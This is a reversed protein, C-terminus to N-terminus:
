ASGGPEVIEVVRMHQTVERNLYAWAAPADGGCRIWLYYALDPWCEPNLAAASVGGAVHPHRRVGGQTEVGALLIPLMEKFPQAEARWGKRAEKDARYTKIPAYGTVEGTPSITIGDAWGVKIWAGGRAPSLNLVTNLYGNRHDSRLWGKYGALWLADELAARTTPSTEYGGAQLVVRGDDFARLISTYYFVVDIYYGHNEVRFHSKGRRSTDAPAAGAHRGKKYKYREIHLRLNGFPTVSPDKQYQAIYTM